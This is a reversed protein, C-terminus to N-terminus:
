ILAVLLGIFFLVAGSALAISVWDHGIRKGEKDLHYHGMSVRGVNMRKNIGLRRNRENIYRKKAEWSMYKYDIREKM